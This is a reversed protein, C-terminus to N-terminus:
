SEICKFGRCVWLWIGFLIACVFLDLLLVVWVHKRWVQKAKQRDGAYPSINKQMSSVFDRNIDDYVDVANEMTSDKGLDGNAEGSLRKKKKKLGNCLKVGLLPRFAMSQGRSGDLSPNQSVNSLSPTSNVSNSDLAMIERVISDFEPQFSHYVFNESRRKSGGRATEEFASKVRNLFWLCESQELDQDTIAFYVSVDDILFTYTRGRVTHCFMSHYPPTKEICRRALDELDPHRAFEALITAKRAICAYHILDPNSIM